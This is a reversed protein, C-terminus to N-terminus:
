PLPLLRDRLERAVPREPRAQILQDFLRRAEAPQDRSLQVALTLLQAYGVTFDDSAAASELWAQRAGTWDGEAELRLGELYRNRARVVAEFRLDSAETLDPLFGDLTAVARGVVDFLTDYPRLLGAGGHWAARWNVQQRDDSDAGAGAELFVAVPGLYGQLVQWADTLGLPRLADRLGPDALRRELAAIRVPHSEGTGVWGVVPTDVTPRLLFGHVHPFAAAVSGAMLSLTEFDVQYLPIWQCFLGGPALRGAIAAFHERTYLAGAGDRAPHFLDAVIVDYRNTTVRVFRRADAVYQRLRGPPAFNQPAFEGMVQVVEPALEVSDVTVDPHTTAAAATIGTGSGLFLARRPAPHLVLPLHAQRREANASATGGMTFRNNVRLTRHGEDTEVVAVSDAIGARAVQLREGPLLGPRDLDPLALALVLAGGRAVVLRGTWRGPWLLTYGMVLVVVTWKGGLWPFLLAGLLLPALMGGVTNWALAQGVSGRRDRVAEALTAFTAGMLFTPVAFVSAAVLGEAAMVGALSDGMVARLGRYVRPAVALAWGSVACAAGLGGLLWGLRQELPQVRAVRGAWGAGLATGVLYVALVSAFTFVTNELVGKLLRVGVVELGIGLGGTALLLALLKGEGLGVGEVRAEASRVAPKEGARALVLLGAACALNLGGLVAVTGTFGLGPVLVIVSALTGVVAGLTNAAYLSGVVRGTTVQGRVFCEMAPFSAGMAATAPLLVLFPLGFAVAAQRVGSPELGMAELAVHQAAPILRISVWAWIGILVEFGAYWVAPRRSRRIPGDLVGAGLACGGFFAAVVALLAPMEQGLGLGFWRTWLM